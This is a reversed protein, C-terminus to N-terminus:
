GLVARAIRAAVESAPLDETAITLHASAYFPARALYRAELAPRDQLVPREPADPEGLCRKISTALPAQLYVLLTSQEGTLLARTQAHELAGGGLAIVARPVRLLEALIEAELRRFHPEGHHQFLEAISAGVRETLLADADHFGWALMPALLRGVTSKGAGMFGTLVVRQPKLLIM